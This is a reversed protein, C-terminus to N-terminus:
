STGEKVFCLNYGLKDDGAPLADNNAFVGSASIRDAM